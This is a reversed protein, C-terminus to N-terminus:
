IDRGYPPRRNALQERYTAWRCNSPEYGLDNDIRDITLTGSYGHATAWDHFAVFSTGWEDCVKIGRGGYRDWAIDKQNNCRHRM